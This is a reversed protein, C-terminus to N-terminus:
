KFNRRIGLHLSFYFPNQAIVLISNLKLFLYKWGLYGEAQSYIISYYGKPNEFNSDLSEPSTPEWSPVM